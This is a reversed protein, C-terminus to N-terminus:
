SWPLIGYDFIGNNSKKTQSYLLAILAQLNQSRVFFLCFLKIKAVLVVWCFEVKHWRCWKNIHLGHLFSSL